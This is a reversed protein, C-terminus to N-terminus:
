RKRSRKAEEEWEQKTRCFSLPERKGELQTLQKDLLVVNNGLQNQNAVASSLLSSQAQLTAHDSSCSQYLRQPESQIHGVENLWRELPAYERQFIQSACANAEQLQVYKNAGYGVVGVLTNWFGGQEVKGRAWDDVAGHIADVFAEGLGYEQEALQAAIAGCAPSALIGSVRLESAALGCGEAGLFRTFCMAGAEQLCEDRSDCRTAPKPPYQRQYPVSCSASAWARNGSLSSRVQDIRSRADDQAKKNEEYRARAEAYQRNLALHKDRVSPSFSEPKKLLSKGKQNV